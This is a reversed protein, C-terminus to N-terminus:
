RIRAKEIYKKNSKFSKSYEDGAKTPVEPMIEVTPKKKKPAGEDLHEENV